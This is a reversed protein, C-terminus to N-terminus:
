RGPDVGYRLQMAEVGRVLTGSTYTIAQMQRGQRRPYRCLLQPVGDGGLGIYLLNMAAHHSAPVGDVPQLRQRWRM